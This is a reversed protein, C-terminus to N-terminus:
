LFDQCTLISAGASYLSNKSVMDLSSALLEQVISFRPLHPHSYLSASGCMKASFKRSIVPESVAHQSKATFLESM